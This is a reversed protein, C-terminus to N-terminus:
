KGFTKNTKFFKYLVFAAISVATAFAFRMKIEGIGNQDGAREAIGDFITNLLDSWCVVVFWAFTAIVLSRLSLDSHDKM